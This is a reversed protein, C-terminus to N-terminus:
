RGAIREGDRWVSLVRVATMTPDEGLGRIVVTRGTRVRVMRCTRGGDPYREICRTGRSQPKPLTTGQRLRLTVVEGSSSARVVRAVATRTTPVLVGVSAKSRVRRASPTVIRLSVRDTNRVPTPKIAPPKKITPTDDGVLRGAEDVLREVQRLLGPDDDCKGAARMILAISSLQSSSGAPDGTRRALRITSTVLRTLEARDKAGGRDSDCFLSLAGALASLEEAAAKRRAARDSGAKTAGPARGADTGPVSSGTASSSSGAGSASTGTAASSSGAAALTASAAAGVSGRGAPSGNAALASSLGPRSTGKAGFPDVDSGRASASRARALLREASLTPAAGLADTREVLSLARTDVRDAGATSPVQASVPAADGASSGYAFLGGGAVVVAAALGGLIPDVRVDSTKIRRM